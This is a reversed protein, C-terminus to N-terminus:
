KDTGPLGGPARKVDLRVAELAALLETQARVASDLRAQVDSREREVARRAQDAQEVMQEARRRAEEVIRRSEDQAETLLREREAQLDEVGRRAAQRVQEIETSVLRRLATAAALAVESFEDTAAPRHLREIEGAAADLLRHVSVPDYGQAVLPFAHERLRLQDLM